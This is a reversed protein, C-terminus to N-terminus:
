YPSPAEMPEPYENMYKIRGADHGMLMASECEFLRRELYMLRAEQRGIRATADAIRADVDSAYHVALPYDPHPETFCINIYRPKM